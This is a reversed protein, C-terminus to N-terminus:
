AVEDFYDSPLADCEMQARREAYDCFLRLRRANPAYLCHAVDVDGGREEHLWAIFDAVVSVKRDGDPLAWFPAVRMTGLNILHDAIEDARRDVWRERAVTHLHLDAHGM